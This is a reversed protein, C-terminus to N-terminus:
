DAQTVQQSGTVGQAFRERGRVYDTEALPIYGTLSVWNQMDSLSVDVFDHLYRVNHVDDANIYWFLPRSLPQYKDSRANDVTPYHPGDGSDVALVYLEEWHRLYAGLGFFGLANENDIIGAALFEEDESATYDTRSARTTGVIRSTFFDYTGSDQGRGFLVLPEDPWGDRVDSWKTVRNEAEPEWIAKLETVTISKAWDNAGNVVVSVADQAIPIEIFRVENAGCAALEEANIPRSAGIMHVEGACLKRFGATTGTFEVAIGVRQGSRQFRRVAETSIPYVTSSGSIRIDADEM